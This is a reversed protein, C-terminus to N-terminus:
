CPVVTSCCGICCCGCACACCCGPKYRTSYDGNVSQPATRVTIGVWVKRLTSMIEGRETKEVDEISIKYIFRVTCSHNSNLSVQKSESDVNM